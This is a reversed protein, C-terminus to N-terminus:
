MSFTVEHVDKVHLKQGDGEPLFLMVYTAGVHFRDSWTRCHDVADACNLRLRACPQLMTKTYTQIAHM